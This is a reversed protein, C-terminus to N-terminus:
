IEDGVMFQVRTKAKVRNEKLKQVQDWVTRVLLVVPFLIVLVTQELKIFLLYSIRFIM